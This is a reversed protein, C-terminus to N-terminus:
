NVENDSRKTSNRKSKSAGKGRGANSGSVSPKDDKKADVADQVIEIANFHLLTKIVGPKLTSDDIVRGAEFGLRTTKFRYRNM